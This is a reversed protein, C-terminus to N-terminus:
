DTLQRVIDSDWAQSVRQLALEPQLVQSPVRANM